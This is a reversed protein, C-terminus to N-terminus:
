IHFFLFVGHEADGDVQGSWGSDGIWRGDRGAGDRVWKDNVWGAAVL